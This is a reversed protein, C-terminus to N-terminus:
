ERNPQQTGKTRREFTIGGQNDNTTNRKTVVYQLDDSFVEALKDIKAREEATAKDRNEVAAAIMQAMEYRTLRYAPSIKDKTAGTLGANTLEKVYIYEWSNKEMTDFPNPAYPNYASATCIGILVTMVTAVIFKKM